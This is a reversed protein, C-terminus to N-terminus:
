NPSSGKHSLHLDAMAYLTYALGLLSGKNALLWRMERLVEGIPREKAMGALVFEAV